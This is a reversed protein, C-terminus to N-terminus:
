ASGKRTTQLTDLYYTATQFTIAIIASYASLMVGDAFLASADIGEGSTVTFVTAIAAWGLAAIPLLVRYISRVSSLLLALDEDSATGNMWRMKAAAIKIYPLAFASYLHYTVLLFVAPRWRWLVGLPALQGMFLSIAGFLLLLMVVLALLARKM